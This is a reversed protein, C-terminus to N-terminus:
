RSQGVGREIWREKVGAAQFEEAADAVDFATDCEGVREISHAGSVGALDLSRLVAEPEIAGQPGARTHQGADQVPDVVAFPTGVYVLQNRLAIRGAIERALADALRM